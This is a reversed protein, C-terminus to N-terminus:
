ASASHSRRRAIPSDQPTVLQSASAERVPLSRAITNPLPALTPEANALPEGSKASQTPISHDSSIPISCKTSHRSHSPPGFRPQYQEEFRARATAQDRTYQELQVQNLANM